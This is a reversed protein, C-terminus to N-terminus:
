STSIRGGKAPRFSSPLDDAKPMVRQQNSTAPEQNSTGPQENSTGPQQNYFPSSLSSYEIASQPNFSFTAPQENSTGPQQNYFPSSLSSRISSPLDDAKPM